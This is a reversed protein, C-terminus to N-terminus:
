ILFTAMCKHINGQQSACTLFAGLTLLNIFCLAIIQLFYIKYYIVFAYRFVIKMHLKEAKSLSLSSSTLHILENLGQIFKLWEWM